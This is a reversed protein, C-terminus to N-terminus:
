TNTKSDEAHRLKEKIKNVNQITSVNKLLIEVTSTMTIQQINLM